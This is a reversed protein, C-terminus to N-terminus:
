TTIGRPKKRRGKEEVLLGGHWEVKGGQSVPSDVELTTM